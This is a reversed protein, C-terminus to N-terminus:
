TPNADDYNIRKTPDKNDRYQAPIKGEYVHDKEIYRVNVDFENKEPDTLVRNLYHLPTEDSHNVMYDMKVDELTVGYKSCVQSLLEEEMESLQSYQPIRHLFSNFIPDPPEITPSQAYPNPDGHDPHYIYEFGEMIADILQDNQANRFRNVFSTFQSEFRAKKDSSAM